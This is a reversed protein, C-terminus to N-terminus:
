VVAEGCADSVDDDVKGERDKGQTSQVVDGAVAAGRENESRVFDFDFLLSQTM